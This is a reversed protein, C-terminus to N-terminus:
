PFLNNASLIIKPSFLLPWRGNGQSYRHEFRSAEFLGSKKSPVLFYEREGRGERRRWRVVDKYPASYVCLMNRDERATEWFHHIPPDIESM